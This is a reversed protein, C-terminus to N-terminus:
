MLKKDYVRVADLLVRVSGANHALAGTIPNILGMASLAIAVLNITMSLIINVRIATVTVNALRKLSPIKSIDGGM